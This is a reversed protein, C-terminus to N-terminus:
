QIIHLIYIPCVVQGFVILSTCKHPGFVDLSLLLLLWVVVVVEFINKNWTRRGGYIKYNQSRSYTM